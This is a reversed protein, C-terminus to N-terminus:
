VAPLPGVGATRFLITQRQRSYLLCAPVIASRCVAPLDCSSRGPSAKLATTTCPMRRCRCSNFRAHVSLFLLWDEARVASRAVQLAPARSTANIMNQKRCRRLETAIGGLAQQTCPLLRQVPHLMPKGAPGQVCRDTCVVLAAHMPLPCPLITQM